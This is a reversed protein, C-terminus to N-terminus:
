DPNSDGNADEQSRQVPRRLEWGDPLADVFINMHKKVQSVSIQGKGYSILGDGHKTKYTGDPVREWESQQPQRMAALAQDIAAREEQDIPHNGGEDIMDNRIVNLAAIITEADGESLNFLSM